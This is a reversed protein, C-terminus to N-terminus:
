QFCIFNHSDLGGVVWGDGQTYLSSRGTRIRSSETTIVFAALQPSIPHM